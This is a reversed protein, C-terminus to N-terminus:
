EACIRLTSRWVQLLHLHIKNMVAGHCPKNNIKLHDSEREERRTEEPEGSLKLKEALHRDKVELISIMKISAVDGKKRVTDVLQGVRDELVLNAQLIQNAERGILVPPNSARLGDILDKLLAESVGEILEVRVAELKGESLLFILIM